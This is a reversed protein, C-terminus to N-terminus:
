VEGNVGATRREQWYRAGHDAVAELLLGWRSSYAGVAVGVVVAAARQWQECGVDM